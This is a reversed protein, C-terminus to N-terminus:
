LQKQNNYWKIFDIVAQYATQIDINIPLDLEMEEDMSGIKSIVPMLSNWDRQYDYRLMEYTSWKIGMFEAILENNHKM